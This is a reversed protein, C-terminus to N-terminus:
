HCVPFTTRVTEQNTVFSLLLAARGMISPLHHLSVSVEPLSKHNWLLYVGYPSLSEPDATVVSYNERIWEQELLLQVFRPTM